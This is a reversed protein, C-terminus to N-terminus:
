PVKSLDKKLHKLSNIFDNSVSMTQNLDTAVHPTIVLVLEKRANNLGTSGFLLGIGPIDGLLPVRNKTLTNSTTIIGGLALTQGDKLMASTQFQSKSIVPAVIGSTTNPQASSVEQAINLLIVGSANIRPTVTLIVGTDRFQITQAFVSSGGSQVPTLASGIPVPVESGVQIRAATNNTVLISPASLTKVRTRNESANLFLQLQYTNHLIAFTQIALSPAGGNAGAFSGGTSNIPNQLNAKKDLFAQLGVSLDGTLDVEYIRADIMVQRPLVDMDHLTRQMLEYDHPTAQIILSNNRDDPMFRISSQIGVSTTQATGPPQASGAPRAPAQSSTGTPGLVAAPNEPTTTGTLASQPIAPGPGAPTLGAGPAPGFSGYLQGLVEALESAKANQVQYVYTQLGVEESPQDLKQVWDEVEKFIEPAPSIALIANQRDMPLLQVATSGSTLGYGAFIAKLEPILNAALNNKVPIMRVRQRGLVPDDFVDILKELEIMKAAGESVLLLNGKDQVVISGGPSMYPQLIKAMETAPMFKMPIVKLTFMEEPPVPQRGEKAFHFDTPQQKAVAMPVISYYGNPQKVASAGNIELIMELLGFLDKRSVTTSTNITVTGKVAPDIITNIKLEPGLIRLVQYLDANELNLQIADGAAVQDAVKKAEGEAPKTTQPAPPTPATQGAAPAPKPTGSEVIVGPNAANGGTAPASPNQAGKEAPTSPQAGPATTSPSPAPATAPPAAPAEAPECSNVSGFPTDHKVVKQGEPCVFTTSPPTTPKQQTTQPAAPADTKQQKGAALSIGTTLVGLVAIALLRWARM